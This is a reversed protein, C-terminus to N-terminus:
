EVGDFIFVMTEGPPLAPISLTPLSDPVATNESLLRSGQQDVNHTEWDGTQTVRTLRAAGSIPLDLTVPTEGPNSPDPYGPVRRSLVFVTLRDGARTAYASILPGNSVATRRNSGPLDIVPSALTKVALADGRAENNFLALLDWSPYTQGGGNWRAHSTWREGSGYTFFNQLTQGNAARMLFADLTATGAAVSKMAFEQQQAQEPNVVANNLGNLAYGPGAEYTGTFVPAGRTGELRAAAERHRAARIVGSQLVHTLVSSLGKANSKAPGENEDWGGNYAAHAMYPTNPSAAIAELGYDFGSWGNSGSRGGIVPQLKPALAPWHESERLISLVYEQYLGYVKGARHKEGTAADKMSPFVWPHFLPNWTENGIEFFIRGFREVWPGHGQAARKAAWPYRTPDDTQVDFSAALYEALGLWEDRTFHPEIQLWPDMGVRGIENLIQPLSSGGGLNTVGGQNTLSELDYTANGTRVFAHTRLAGMGSAKLREVDEPVLALFEADDRYVRFNDVDFQGPGEFRLEMRGPRKTPHVVPVEFTASYRKWSPTVAFQAPAIRSDRGAYFGTIAFTVPSVSRGRMWVEVRYRRGPELVEYFSQELGSHNFHGVAFREGQALEFRLHTEGPEAVPTDLDHSVLEWNGGAADDSWGLLSNRFTRGPRNAAWVRNTLRKGREAGVFRTRIIALDGAEIATGKGELALYYGRHQAPPVDSRLVVYGRAGDVLDWELQLVGRETLQATFGTPAPLEAGAQSVRRAVLKSKEAKARKPIPDPPVVEVVRSQQSVRGQGDVAKVTFYYPVGPRNWAAWAFEYQNTDSPLVRDNPLVSIWGSAQHGGVAVRDKRVSRFAGNVIRLIEVEAGDLAGTRWADFNSLSTPEALIRNPSSATTQIMTRFVLPEFGSDKSLRHGNGIAGITATFPQVDENVVTDTVVFHATNSAISKTSFLWIACAAVMCASLLIALRKM